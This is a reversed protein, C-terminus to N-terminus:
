AIINRGYVAKLESVVLQEYNEPVLSRIMTVYILFGVSDRGEKAVVYGLLELHGKALKWQRNWCSLHIISQM